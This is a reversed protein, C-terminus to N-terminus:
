RIYSTWRWMQIRHHGYDLPQAAQLPPLGPRGAAMVKKEDGLFRWSSLYCTWLQTRLMDWVNAISLTMTGKKAAESTALSMERTAFFRPGAWLREGSSLESCYRRPSISGHSINKSGRSSTGNRAFSTGHKRTMQKKRTRPFCLHLTRADPRHTLNLSSAPTINDTSTVPIASGHPVDPM